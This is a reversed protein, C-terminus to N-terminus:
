KCFPWVPCVKTKRHYAKAKEVTHVTASVGVRTYRELSNTAPSPIVDVTEQLDLSGAALDAFKEAAEEPSTTGTEYSKDEEIGRFEADLASRLTSRARKTMQRNYKRRFERDILVVIENATTKTAWNPQEAM